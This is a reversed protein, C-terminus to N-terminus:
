SCFIHKVFGNKQRKSQCNRRESVVLQNSRNSYIFANYLSDVIVEIVRADNQKVRRFIRYLRLTRIENIM